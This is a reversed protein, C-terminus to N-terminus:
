NFCLSRVLSDLQAKLLFANQNGAGASRYALHQNTLKQIMM